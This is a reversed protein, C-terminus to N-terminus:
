PVVRGSLQTTDQWSVVHTITDIVVRTGNLGLRARNVEIVDDIDFIPNPPTSVTVTWAEAVSMALLNDAAEQAQASTTVFNSQTFNPVDGMPGNVYTPSSPNLDQAEAIVPATSGSAAGPANQTGTGTVIFDNYIRDRTFISAVAVPIAFPSQGIQYDYPNGAPPAAVGLATATQDTFVFTTATTQPNPTPFGTLIGNVNFFLEYGVANAMDLAAQWPDSGQNYSAVPVTASTPTLNNIAGVNYEPAVQNVLHIIEAVFNGGAAPFNYPEKFKRQSIVWSRDYVTLTVVLDITSDDVETTAIAFLGLPTWDANAAGQAAIGSEIFVENGFPATLSQPSTPILQNVPVTPVIEVTVSGQRRQNSNRDVTINAKSIPVVINTPVGNQYVTVRADALYSGYRLANTMNSTVPLM